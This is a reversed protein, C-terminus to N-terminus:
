KGILQLVRERPMSEAHGDYYGVNIRDDSVKAPDEYIMIEAPKIETLKNGRRKYIYDSNEMIWKVQVQRDADMIEQPIETKSRPTVFVEVSGIYPFLEDFGNPLVGRHDVSYMTVGLVLQRINSLSSVNNAEARAKSLAPLMVSVGLMTAGVSLMPSGALLQDGPFGCIERVHFGKEDSWTVSGGPVLEPTLDHMPPLLMLPSDAGYIDGFGAYRSLMVWTPYMTPVLKPVDVFAISNAPHDGLRRRVAQYAPNDLISKGKDGTNARANAIAASVMQPYLGFYWTGGDIAWSPTVMPIALYHIDVGNRKATKFAITVKDNKFKQELVHNIGQEARTLVDAAKAPDDLKNIIVFGLFSNGGANPDVYMAWQDGFPAVIDALDAGAVKRVYDKASEWMQATAPNINTAFMNAVDLLGSLDRRAANVMVASAPIQRLIDDTLPKAELLKWLGTRPAPADVFYNAVFDKGDFGGAWIVQKLQALGLSDHVHQWMELAKANPNVKFGQDALAVLKEESLYGVLVPETSSVEKLAAKFAPSDKLPEGLVPATGFVFTVLGNENTATM